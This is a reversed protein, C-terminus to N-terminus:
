EALVDSVANFDGDNPAPTLNLIHCMLEYLHINEFADVSYAQKFVPGSALFIGWVSQNDPTYGHAGGTYAGPHSDFYVRSGISWGDDAICIIPQIRRHDNYHLAAPVMGKKYVQMHPHVGTLAQLIAEEKAQVPIIDAIPSWNVLTVDDLNIYDDLFVVRDRSLQSMGHDSVVIINVHDELGIDKIGDLLTGIQSDVEEIAPRVAERVPGSAHGQSDPWEFYLTVFRPRSKEPLALWGLVQQVRDEFPISGNFVKYYTPRIGQIRADSGPWFFTAAIEGQKEATVWLPEGGYWKGDIASTSGSGISFWEDFVPDYMTNAVIGHHEPYLGTVVSYHNPFTKSPFVPILGQAKVGNAAIQDLAPTVAFDFYDHRFGDLSILILIDQDHTVPPQTDRQSNCGLSVASLWLWLIYKM